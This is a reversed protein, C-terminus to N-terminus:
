HKQLGHKLLEVFVSAVDLLLRRGLELLPVFLLLGQGPAPLQRVLQAHLQPTTANDQKHKHTQAYQDFGALTPFVSLFFFFVSQTM